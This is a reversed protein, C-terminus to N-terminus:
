MASPYIKFPTNELARSRQSELASRLEEAVCITDLTSIESKEVVELLSDVLREM